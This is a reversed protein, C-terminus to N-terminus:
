QLGKMLENMKKKAESKRKLFGLRGGRVSEWYEEDGDYVLDYCDNNVNM